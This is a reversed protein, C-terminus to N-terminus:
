ALRWFRIRGDPLKESTYDWGPHRAKYASAASRASFGQAMTVLLIDGVELEDWGFRTPYGFHAQPLFYRPKYPASLTLSM